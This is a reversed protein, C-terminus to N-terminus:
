LIEYLAGEGAGCEAGAASDGDARSNDGGRRSARRSHLAKDSQSIDRIMLRRSLRIASVM